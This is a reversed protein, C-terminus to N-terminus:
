SAAPIRGRLVSSVISLAKQVDRSTVGYHTVLRVRNGGADLVRLGLHACDEIFEQAPMARIEAFVINTRHLRERVTLGKIEALGEALTRANSHDESLRDVMNALAYLGAAAMVGAQRMGGGLRRRWRRAIQVKERTGLFLSGVPCSLGKSLCFTVTDACGVIESADVGIAIAANFLRAGDMHIALREDRAAATVASLAAIPWALGEHRNHTNEIALAATRPQTMPAPNRVAAHVQQPTIVGDDTVIQRIQVNAIGAAGAGESLFIHSAADAIVEDSRASNVLMGLLNGMTGSSIFLAAEKRLRHAAVEELKNVSPDEGFGDDGLPARAMAQRM